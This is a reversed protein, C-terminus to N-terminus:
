TPRTACADAGAYACGGSTKRVGASRLKTSAATARMMGASSSPGPARSAPTALKM